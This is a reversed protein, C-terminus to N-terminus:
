PAPGVNFGISLRIEHGKNPEVSHPVDPPFLLMMGPQPPVRIEFPGDHFLLDGSCPGVSVYYVGSLCEDNEDHHHRSTAQGPEMANIWFGCRLTPADSGLRRRAQELVFALFDTMGPLQAADVYLNEFRGNIFHSRRAFDSEGLLKFAALLSVNFEACDPYRIAEILTISRCTGPLAM